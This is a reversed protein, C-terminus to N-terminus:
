QTCKQKISLITSYLLLPTHPPPLIDGIGWGVGGGCSLIYPYIYIGLLAEQGKECIYDEVRRTRRRGGGGRRQVSDFRNTSYRKNRLPQGERASSSNLVFPIHFDSTCTWKLARYM